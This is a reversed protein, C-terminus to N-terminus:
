TMWSTLCYRGPGNEGDMSAVPRMRLARVMIKEGIMSKVNRKRCPQHDIVSVATPQRQIAFPLRARTFFFRERRRCTPFFRSCRHHAGDIACMLSEQIGPLIPPICAAGSERTSYLNSNSPVYSCISIRPIPLVYQLHENAAKLAVRVYLQIRRSNASCFFLSPLAAGKWRGEAWCGEITM